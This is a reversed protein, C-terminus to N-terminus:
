KHKTENLSERVENPVLGSKADFEKFAMKHGSIKRTLYFSCVIIQPYEGM